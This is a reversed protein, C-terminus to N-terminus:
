APSLCLLQDSLLETRLRVSTTCSLRSIRDAIDDRNFGYFKQRSYASLQSRRSSAARYRSRAIELGAELRAHLRHPSQLYRAPGVRQRARDVADLLLPLSEREFNLMLERHLEPVDGPAPPQDALIQEVVAVVEDETTCRAGFQNPLLQDYRENTLAKFNIVPVGSLWAEIGTTCGDHIVARAAFIWPAVSGEHLVTVNTLGTTVHRYFDHNESPHPRVVVGLKPFADSLRHILEVFAVLIRTTHSWFRVLRQRVEPKAPDFRAGPTFPYRVGLGHNATSLNTNVLIFDGFRARLRAAPQAFYSSWRKNYLDFRPHGTVRIEQRGRQQEYFAKQYRGWVCVIDDGALRNVDLRRALTRRWDADTGPFIAGEDDLHVCVVDHARVHEYWSMDVNPFTPEFAKGVLVGGRLYRAATHIADLHGIFVRAGRQVLHAGVLLHSDLERNITETPLLVPFM